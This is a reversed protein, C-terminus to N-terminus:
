GSSMEYRPMQSLSGTTLVAGTAELWVDTSTKLQTTTYSTPILSVGSASITLYTPYSTPPQLSIHHRAQIHLLLQSQNTAPKRSSSDIRYSIPAIYLLSVPESFIVPFDFRPLDIYLFLNESKETEAKVVHTVQLMVIRTSVAHIEEMKRFM